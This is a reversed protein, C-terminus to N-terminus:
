IISFFNHICAGHMVSTYLDPMFTTLISPLPMYIYPPKLFGIGHCEGKKLDLTWIFMPGFFSLHLLTIYIYSTLFYCCFCQITHFNWKRSKKLVKSGDLNTEQDRCVDGRVLVSDPTDIQKWKERMRHRYNYRYPPVDTPNLYSLNEVERSNFSQTTTLKHRRRVNYERASVFLIM